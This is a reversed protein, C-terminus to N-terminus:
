PVYNQGDVAGYPTSIGESSSNLAAALQGEPYTFVNVTGTGPDTVYALSNKKNITVHFPDVYGYGFTGSISTYPPAIVDVSAAVQDCAILNGRQDLALGGADQLAIGLNTARCGRLGGSYEVITGGNEFNV